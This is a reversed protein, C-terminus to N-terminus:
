QRTPSRRTWIRQEATIAKGPTECAQPDVSCQRILIQSAAGPQQTAMALVDARAQSDVGLTRAAAVFHQYTDIVDM